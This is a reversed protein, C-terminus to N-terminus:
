LNQLSSCGKTTVLAEMAPVRCFPIIKAAWGMSCRHEGQDSTRASLCMGLISMTPHLAAAGQPSCVCVPGFLLGMRHSGWWAHCESLVQPSNRSFQSISASFATQKHLAQSGKRMNIGPSTAQTPLM